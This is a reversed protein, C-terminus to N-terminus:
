QITRQRLAEYFLIAATTSVNLSDAQGRMPISVTTVGPGSWCSSLGGAEEGLIIAALGTWDTELYSASGDIRTAYVKFSHETLWALAQESPAAFLPMSFVIGTSARIANPNFPDTRQNALIVADVGAADASRLIAGLNGPKEVSEVVAVLMGPVPTLQDLEPLSRLRAVALLGETRDGFTIKEMVESTVMCLPTGSQVLQAHLQRSESKDLLSECVFVEELPWGATLARQIEREGDVLFRQQQQRGRGQRLLGAAKIRPNQTSTIENDM